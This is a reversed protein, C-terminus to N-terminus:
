YNNSIQQLEKESEMRIQNLIFLEDVLKQRDKGIKELSNELNQNRDILCTLDVQGSDKVLDANINRLIKNNLRLEELEVEMRNKEEVLYQLKISNSYGSSDLEGSELVKFDPM